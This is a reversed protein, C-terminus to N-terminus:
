SQDSNDDPCQRLINQHAQTTALYIERSVTANTTKQCAQLVRIAPRASPTNCDKAHPQQARFAKGGCCNHQYPSPGENRMSNRAWGSTCAGVLCAFANRQDSHDDTTGKLIRTVHEVSEVGSCCVGGGRHHRPPCNRERATTSYLTIYIFCRATDLM